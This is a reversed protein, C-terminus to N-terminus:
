SLLLSAAVYTATGAILSLAVSRRWLHAGATVAIGALLPVWRTVPTPGSAGALTYAVLVIMVALPMTRSLFQVLSGSERGHALVFPAIRCVFTILAVVAVAAWIQGTSLLTHTTEHHPAQHLPLLHLAAPDFAAPGLAHASM